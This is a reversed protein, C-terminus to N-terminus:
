EFLALTYGRNQLDNIVDGLIEANTKSVSHFLYICGNHACSSVMSFAEKLDPQANTEWDRYAFSWFVSKYGLSQAVALTRQSFQGSPPRFLTMEYGFNEKVYDHLSMIEYVIQDLELETLNYHNNTHNGITHGEDIMRRVLQPQTQCYHMSLFFVAQINKAKLIDLIEATINEYEYGCDFTLYVTPIDEEIFAANLDSYQTQFSIPASPRVANYNRGSGFNYLTNDFAELQSRTYLTGIYPEPPITPETTLTEPKTQPQTPAQTEQPASQITPTTTGTTHPLVTPHIVSANVPACAVLFSLQAFLIILCFLRLAKKM